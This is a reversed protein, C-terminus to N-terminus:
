NDDPILQLDNENEILLVSPKKEIKEVSNRIWQYFKVSIFHLEEVNEVENTLASWMSSINNETNFQRTNKTTM